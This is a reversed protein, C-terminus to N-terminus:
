GKAIAGAPPVGGAGKAAKAAKAKAKADKAAPTPQGGAKKKAVFGPRQRLTGGSATGWGASSREAEQYLARSTAVADQIAWNPALDGTPPQVGQMRLSGALDGHTILHWQSAVFNLTTECNPDTSLYWDVGPQGTARYTAELSSDLTRAMVYISSYLESEKPGPWYREIFETVSSCHRRMHWYVEPGMPRYDPSFPTAARGGIYEDAGSLEVSGDAAPPV